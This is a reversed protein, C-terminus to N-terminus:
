RPDAHVFHELSVAHAVTRHSVHFDAFVYWRPAVPSPAAGFHDLPFAPGLVAGFELKTMPIVPARSRVRLTLPNAAEYTLAQVFVAGYRGMYPLVADM